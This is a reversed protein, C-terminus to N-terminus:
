NTGRGPHLTANFRKMTAKAWREPDVDMAYLERYEEEDDGIRYVLHFEAM